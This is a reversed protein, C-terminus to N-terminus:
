LSCKKPLEEKEEVAMVDSIEFVIKDREPIDIMGPGNINTVRRANMRKKKFTGLGKIYVRDEENICRYLLDMMACCLFKAKEQSIDNEAAFKKYFDTRNM